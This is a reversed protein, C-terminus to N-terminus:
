FKTFDSKLNSSDDLVNKAEYYFKLQEIYMNWDNRQPFFESVPGVTM